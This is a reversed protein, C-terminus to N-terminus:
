PCCMEDTYGDYVEKILELSGEDFRFEQIIRIMLEEYDELTFCNSTEHLLTEYLSMTSTAPAEANRDAPQIAM